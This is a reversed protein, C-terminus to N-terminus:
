ATDEEPELDAVIATESSHHRVAVPADDGYVKEVTALESRKDTDAYQVWAAQGKRYQAKIYRNGAIVNDLSGSM